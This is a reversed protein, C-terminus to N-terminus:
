LLTREIHRSNSFRYPLTHYVFSSFRVTEYVITLFDARLCSAAYQILPNM